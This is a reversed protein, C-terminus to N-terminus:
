QTQVKDVHLAGSSTIKGSVTVHQGIENKVADPNEIPMVKQDNDAVMVPKEGAQICKKACAAHDASAGKAGCKSDSIWGTYSQNKPSAWALVSVLLLAVSLLSTRKM